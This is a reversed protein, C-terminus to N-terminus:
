MFKFLHKNTIKALVFSDVLEEVALKGVGFNDEVVFPGSDVFWSPPLFNHDLM